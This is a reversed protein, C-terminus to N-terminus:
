PMRHSAHSRGHHRTPDPIGDASDDQSVRGEQARLTLAFNAIAVDGLSMAPKEAQILILHGSLRTGAVRM